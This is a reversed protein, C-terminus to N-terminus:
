ERFMMIKRGEGFEGQLTKDDIRKFTYVTDECGALAKSRTVEFVLEESTARQVSLPAELGICPNKKSLTVTKWSGQDDKIIVTGMVNATVPGDFKATWKGNYSHAKQALATAPILIASALILGKLFNM